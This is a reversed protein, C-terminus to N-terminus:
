TDPSVDHRDNPKKKKEEGAVKEDQLYKAEGRVVLIEKPCQRKKNSVAGENAPKQVPKLKVREEQPLDCDDRNPEKDKRAAVRLLPLRHEVRRPVVSILNPENSMGNALGLLEERITREHVDHHEGGSKQPGVVGLVDDL